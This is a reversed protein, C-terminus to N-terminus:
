KRKIWNYMKFMLVFLYSLRWKVMRFRFRGKRSFAREELESAITESGVFTNNYRKINEFKDTILNIRALFQFAMKTKYFDAADSKSEFFETLHQAVGIMQNVSKEGYGFTTANVNARNYHYYSGRIQSLTGGFYLMRAVLGNDEWMNLGAWPYINNDVYLSRRVLKNHLFLGVTHSYWNKLVERCTVPLPDVIHLISESKEEYIEDCVVIDAKIQVACQYMKDYLDADVWDDADCHIVYDGSAKKMGFSRVIAQGSNQPMNYIHTQAIRSPYDSLVRQLIDMSNDPSCDNIFLLEIDDLTQEFLSRACREVYPAVNYVPVIVSVKPM